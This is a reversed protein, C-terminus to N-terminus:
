TGLMNTCLASFVLKSTYNTQLSIGCRVLKISAVILLILFCGFRFSLDLFPFARSIGWGPETVKRVHWGTVVGQLGGVPVVCGCDRPHYPHPCLGYCRRQRQHNGGRLMRCLTNNGLIVLDTCKSSSLCSLLTLVHTTINSKNCMVRSVVSSQCICNEIEKGLQFWAEHM